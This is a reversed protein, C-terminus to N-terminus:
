GQGVELWHLHIMLPQLLFLWLLFVNSAGGNHAAVSWHSAFAAWRGLICDALPGGEEDGGFLGRYFM